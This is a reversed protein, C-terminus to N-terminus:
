EEWEYHANGPDSNKNQLIKYVELSHTHPSDVTDLFFIGGGRFFFGTHGRYKDCRFLLFFKIKNKNKRNYMEFPM